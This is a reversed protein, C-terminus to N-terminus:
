LYSSYIWTCLQFNSLYIDTDHVCTVVIFKLLEKYLLIIIIGIVTTEEQFEGEMVGPYNGNTVICVVSSFDTGSFSLVSSAGTDEVTDMIEVGFTGDTLADREAARWSINLPLPIGVALCTYISQVVVGSSSLVM